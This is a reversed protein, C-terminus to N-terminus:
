LLPGKQSPGREELIRKRPEPRQRPAPWIENLFSNLKGDSTEICAHRNSITTNKPVGCGRTSPNSSHRSM